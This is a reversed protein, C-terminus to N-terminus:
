GLLSPKLLTVYAVEKTPSNYNLKKSLHVIEFIQFTRNTETEALICDLTMTTSM